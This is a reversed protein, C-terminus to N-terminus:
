YGDALRQLEDRYDPTPRGELFRRMEVTERKDWYSRPTWTSRPPSPPTPYLRAYGLIGGILLTMVLITQGDPGLVWDIVSDRTRTIWTSRPRAATSAVRTSKSNNRRKNMAIM